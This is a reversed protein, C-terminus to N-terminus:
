RLRLVAVEEGGGERGGRRGEAATRYRNSKDLVKDRTTRAPVGALSLIIKEKKKKIRKPERGEREGELGGKGGGEAGGGVLLIM